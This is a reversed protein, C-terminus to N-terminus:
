VGYNRLNKGMIVIVGMTENWSANSSHGTAPNYLFGVPSLPAHQYVEM